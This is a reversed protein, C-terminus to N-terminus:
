QATERTQINEKCVFLVQKHLCHSSCNHPLPRPQCYRLSSTDPNIVDNQASRKWVWRDVRAIDLYIRSLPHPPRYQPAARASSHVHPDRQVLVPSEEGSEQPSQIWCDRLFTRALEELHWLCSWHALKAAGPRGAGLNRSVQSGARQQVQWCSM